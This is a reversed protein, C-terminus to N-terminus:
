QVGGMARANLLRDVEEDSLAEIDELLSVSSNGATEATQPELDIAADVFIERLIFGALANLTPYNFLLTAPLSRNLCSSLVNRLEISLLSDLGLEQLPQDPDVEQAAVLGLTAQVREELLRLLVDQRRVPAAKELQPLWSPQQKKKPLANASVTARGKQLDRLLSPASDVNSFYTKWDIPAIVIQARTDGLMKEMARLGAANSIGGMGTKSEGELLGQRVAMGSESWAGWNISLAPLGHNSRYRAMGDLAANAAAYNTQGPSGFVSAVSSFLVFHDLPLNATLRHLHLVGTLKPSLVREFRDWDQQLLVGDDLAGACHFVGRLPFAKTEDLAAKVDKEEAVDGRCVSVVAGSERMRKFIETAERSPNRRGMVIIQAAGRQALWEAIALGVGSMGGTVLYTGDPRIGSVADTPPCIVVRGIHRAQAMYRFADRANQMHFAQRPLPEYVGAECQQFIRILIDRVFTERTELAPALNFPLYSIDSRMRAISENTRLDAVGMEIFRGGPSLVEIGADVFTGALSNLVVDVGRGATIEQINEAFELTRSDMVHSVGISRLYERKSASGATAFVVAGAHMAVQIAALGVGGAGAHILVREGRQLRAVTMLGYWATLFAVPITAAAEFSLNVPKRWAMDAHVTAFRAFCSPGIAVVEDGPVLSKVGAGVREVVGACEGGLPGSKGQYM